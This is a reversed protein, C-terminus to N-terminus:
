VGIGHNKGGCSCECNHGKAAMCRTDCKHLSPRTRYYILRTAPFICDPGSVPHGVMVSFSDVRNAGNRKAWASKQMYCDKLEIDRYYYKATRGAM